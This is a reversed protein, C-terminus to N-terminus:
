GPPRFYLGAGRWPRPHNRLLCHLLRNFELRYLSHAAECRQKRRGFWVPGEFRYMVRGSHSIVWYLM